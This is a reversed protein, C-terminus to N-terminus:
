PPARQTFRDAEAFTDKTSDILALAPMEPNDISAARTEIWEDVSTAVVHAMGAESLTKVMSRRDAISDSIILVPRDTNAEKPTQKRLWLMIVLWNSASRSNSAPTKPRM